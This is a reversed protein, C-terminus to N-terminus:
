SGKPGRRRMAGSSLPERRNLRCRPPEPLSRIWTRRAMASLKTADRAAPRAQPGPVAQAPPIAKKMAVQPAAERHKVSIDSLLFGGMAILAFTAALAVMRRRQRSWPRPQTARGAPPAQVVTLPRHNSEATPAYQVQEERLQDTLWGITRRTEEVAQRGDASDELMAEFESREAPDLEGLVYATLRPDNPDFTM